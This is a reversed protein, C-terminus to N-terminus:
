VIASFPPPVTQTHPSLPSLWNPSPVVVSLYVGTCTKIPVCVGVYVRVVVFDPVPVPM